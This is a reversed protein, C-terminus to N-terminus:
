GPLHIFPPDPNSINYGWSLSGDVFLEYWATLLRQEQADGRLGLEQAVTRLVYGQQSFGPGQKTADKAVKLLHEKLDPDAAM